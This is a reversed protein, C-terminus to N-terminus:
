QRIASSQFSPPSTSGSISLRSQLVKVLEDLTMTQSSSTQLGNDQNSVQTGLPAQVEAETTIATLLSQRQDKTMISGSSAKQALCKKYTERILAQQDAVTGGGNIPVTGPHMVTINQVVPPTSTRSRKATQYSSLSIRRYPRSGSIRGNQMPRFRSYRRWTPSVQQPTGYGVQYSPGGGVVRTPYM